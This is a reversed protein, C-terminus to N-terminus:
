VVLSFSILVFNKETTNQETENHWDSKSKKKNKERQKSNKTKNKKEPRAEVKMVDFYLNLEIELYM